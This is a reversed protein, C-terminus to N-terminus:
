LNSFERVAHAVGEKLIQELRMDLRGQCLFENQLSNQYGAVQVTGHRKALLRQKEIQWQLLGFPFLM